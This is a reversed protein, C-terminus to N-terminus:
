KWVVGYLSIMDDKHQQQLCQLWISQAVSYIKTPVTIQWSKQLGLIDYTDGHFMFGPGLLDKGLIITEAIESIM